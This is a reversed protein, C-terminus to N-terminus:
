NGEADTKILWLDCDGPRACSVSYGAVCFGGDAAQQVSYGLGADIAGLTRDWIRTGGADTKFLWAESSLSSHPSAFGSVVYGGDSAQAVSYGEDYHSWGYTKDWLLGGTPDTRILWVDDAGADSAKYGVVIYGGDSTQAASHARDEGAGGFTKSWLERGSADTKILWADWDGAGYSATFGAVVYGGDLTQDISESWDYAEGGFIMDWTKDGAANTKILWIDNSGGGYSSTYGAVIYGGDSTQVVSNGGDDSGGGFTRSWVENGLSDTKVLWVDYGGAGYSQTRGAIVFGHDSTQRVSYGEDFGNGGFTKFWVPNGEADFRVLLIDSGGAGYSRTSGAAVYGGDHTQQVSRGDDYDSGGFTVSFSSVVALPHEASWASLTDGTDRAQARVSYTSLRHWVHTMAVSEGSPVFRSWDSVTSDGWDFRVAVSGGDPDEAVTSFRLTDGKRGGAPGSPISPADPAHNRPGCALILAAAMGLFVRRLGTM